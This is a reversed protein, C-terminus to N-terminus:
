QSPEKIPFFCAFTRGNDSRTIDPVQNRCRDQVRPCRSAFVCGQNDVSAESLEYKLAAFQERKDPDLKPISNLLAETYPHYADTLIDRAKGREMLNGLYMVMVRDAIYSVTGLDHSIFLMSINMDRQLQKLLRLIQAQVSVDLAATPEDLILLSPEQALARGIAIRQRQGGSFEHPYRDLHAESLGVLELYEVVKARLQKSKKLMKYRMRPIAESVLEFVKMKPNLSSYPDQFVMAIENKRLYRPQKRADVLIDGSFSISGQNPTELGILLKALTSKGCGSEGVVALTEGANISVDIKNLAVFAKDKDGYIKTLGHAQLSSQNLQSVTM